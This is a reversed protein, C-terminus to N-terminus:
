KSLNLSVKVVRNINELNMSVSSPLCLSTKIIKQANEVKYTQCKKYLKQLHNLQWVPRTEIGNNSFSIIIKKITKNIIKPKIQLINMWHNNNAYEPVPLVSLGETGNISSSYKMNINIKKNLFIPLKELQALGLAAQINTLRYNYGLDNHIFWIKDDKAQNTLYKAREAIKQNDTLLMGGGGATIIKNGNFSLCGIIGITGTHKKSFIGKSYKTGLSESADEVISINRERCLKYLEDFWVANGWVHVPIIASIKNKTVKNYTNGNKFFTEEKIFQMTKQVDINHSNDADMFVPIASNYYIANIPAIFTLTPVIVEDGKKVGVLKLSIHLASTGNICAIAYKANTYKAIKKEFQNVFNGSSSVWEDKICKTVYRLENGKLSPESLNIMSIKKM